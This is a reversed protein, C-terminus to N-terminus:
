TIPNPKKINERKMQILKLILYGTLDILDNQRPYGGSNKIRSLKDDIRVDIQQATSLQCFVNLPAFVSNGYKINKSMLLEELETLTDGLDEAFTKM